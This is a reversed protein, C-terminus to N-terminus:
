SRVARATLVLASAEPRARLSSANRGRVSVDGASMVGLGLRPLEAGHNVAITSRAYAM